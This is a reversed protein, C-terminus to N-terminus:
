KVNPRALALLHEGDDTVTARAATLDTLASIFADASGSPVDVTLTVDAAFTRDAIRIPRERWENEIRGLLDYPIRVLYRRHPTYRILPATTLARALTGGYARILGGAGLKIGGFYRVVAATIDTLDQEQLVHLMPRGATGAPEGDDSSQERVPRLALRTASCIHTATYHEKRLAALFDRAEDMTRVPAIYVIFKSKQILETYTHVSRISDYATM